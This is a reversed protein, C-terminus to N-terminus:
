SSLVLDQTIFLFFRRHEPLFPFSNEKRNSAATVTMVMACGRCTTDWSASSWILFVRTLLSTLLHYPM